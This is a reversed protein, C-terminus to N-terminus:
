RVRETPDIKPLEHLLNLVGDAQSMVVTSHNQM